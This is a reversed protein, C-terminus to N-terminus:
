VLLGLSVSLSDFVQLESRGILALSRTGDTLIPIAAIASFVASGKYHIDNLFDELSFADRDECHHVLLFLSM